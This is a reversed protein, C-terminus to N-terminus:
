LTRELKKTHHQRKEFRSKSFGEEYNTKMEDLQKRQEPTLIQYVQHNIAARNLVYEKEIVALKESIQKAKAEDYSVSNSLKHLEATLQQRQKDAQRAKPVQSHMLEFMKDQQTESLNLAALHPPIGKMRGGEHSHKSPGHSVPARQHCRDHNDSEAYSSLPITISALALALLPTTIKM